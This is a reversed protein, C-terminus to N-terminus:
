TSKEYLYAEKRNIKRASIIRIKGRRITFVIFLLKGRKTKGVIRLREEGNSHLKDKFVRKEKDFFAEESERNTIEHKGWSKDKNGKDWQFKIPKRLKRM